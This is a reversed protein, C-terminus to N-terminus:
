VLLWMFKIITLRIDGDRLQEPLKDWMTQLNYVIGNYYLESENSTNYTGDLLSKYIHDMHEVNYGLIPAPNIHYSVLKTIFTMQEVTYQPDCALRVDGGNRMLKCLCETQEKSFDPNAILSVDYGEYLMENLDIMQEPELRPDAYKRVDVGMCIGNVLEVAQEMDFLGTSYKISNKYRSIAKVEDTSPYMSVMDSIDCKAEALAKMQDVTLSPEAIKKIDNGIRLQGYLIDLQEKKFNSEEYTYDTAKWIVDIM